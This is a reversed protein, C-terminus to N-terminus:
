LKSEAFYNRFFLLHYPLANTWYAWNHEGNRETYDHAVGHQQLKEHLRRNAAIFMDSTGCDVLLKVGGNRLTDAIQTVNYKKWTGAQTLTDGLRKIVDFKTKLDDLDVAGSMSSAAGFIDPHRMALMLAGHGGMSLGGIARQSRSKRTRYHEDTYTILESSIFSEYRSATDVPSDVYWSSYGGDPCVIIMGFLDAYAPLSSMKRIWNNYSGSYGHLLYVVPFATDTTNYAAPTIVVTKLSRHMAQSYVNVTDVRAQALSATATFTLLSIMMWKRM